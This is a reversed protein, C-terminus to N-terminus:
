LVVCTQLVFCENSVIDFFIFWPYIGDVRLDLFLLIMWLISAKQLNNRSKLTFKSPWFSIWAKGLCLLLLNPSLRILSPPTCNLWTLLLGESFVSIIRVALWDKAISAEEMKPVFFFKANVQGINKVTFHKKHESGFRVDGFDLIQDSGM